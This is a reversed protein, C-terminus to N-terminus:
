LLAFALVLTRALPLRDKPLTRLSGYMRFVIAWIVALYIADFVLEGMEKTM